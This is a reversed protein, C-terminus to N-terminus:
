FAVFFTVYKLVNLDDSRTIKGIVTVELSDIDAMYFNYFYTIVIKNNSM